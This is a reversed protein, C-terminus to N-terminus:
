ILAPSCLGIRTLGSDIWPHLVFGLSRKKGVRQDPAVANDTLRRAVADSSPSPCIIRRTKRWELVKAVSQFMSADDNAGRKLYKTTAPIMQKVMRITRMM